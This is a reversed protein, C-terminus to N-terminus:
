RLKSKPLLRPSHKRNKSVSFSAKRCGRGLDPSFFQHGITLKTENRKENELSDVDPGQSLRLPSSVRSLAVKSMKNNISHDEAKAPRSLWFFGAEFAM